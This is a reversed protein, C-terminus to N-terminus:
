RTEIQVVNGSKDGDAEAIVLFLKQAPM